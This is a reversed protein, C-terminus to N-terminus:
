KTGERSSLKKRLEEFTYGKGTASDFYRDPHKGGPLNIVFDTSERNKRYAPTLESARVPIEGFNGFSLTVRDKGKKLFLIAKEGTKFVPSGPIYSVLNGVNGGRLTIELHEGQEFDGLYTEIITFEFLTNIGHKEKFSRKGTLEALVIDSSGAKREDLSPFKSYTMSMVSAALLIVAFFTIIQKKM